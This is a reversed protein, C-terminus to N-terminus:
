VIIFVDWIQVKIVVLEELHSAISVPMILSSNNLLYKLDTRFPM